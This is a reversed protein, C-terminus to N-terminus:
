SRIPGLDRWPSCDGGDRVRVFESDPAPDQVEENRANMKAKGMQYQYRAESKPGMNYPDGATVIMVIYTALKLAMATKFDAPWYEIETHRFTYELVADEKDTLIVNGSDGRIIRYPVRSQQTDNRTGSLIRRAKLCDSPEQYAEDWEDSPNEELSSLTKLKTAFPWGYDRLCEDRATDFYTRCAQAEVSSESELNAIPKSVGLFGLAMNAIVTDANSPM